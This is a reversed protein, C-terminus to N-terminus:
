KRLNFSSIFPAASTAVFIYTKNIWRKISPTSHCEFIKKCAYSWALTTQECAWTRIRNGKWYKPIHLVDAVEWLKQKCIKDHPLWLLVWTWSKLHFIVDNRSTFNLLLLLPIHNCCVVGCLPPGVRFELWDSDGVTLEFNKRLIPCPRVHHPNTLYPLRSHNCTCTRTCTVGFTMGSTHWSFVM